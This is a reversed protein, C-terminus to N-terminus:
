SPKEMKIFFIFSHTHIDTYKMYFCFIVERESGPKVFASNTSYKEICMKRYKGTNEINRWVNIWFIHLAKIKRGAQMIFELNMM